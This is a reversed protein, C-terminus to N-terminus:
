KNCLSDHLSSIQLVTKFVQEYLNFVVDQEFSICKNMLFKFFLVFLVLFLVRGLFLKNRGAYCYNRRFM